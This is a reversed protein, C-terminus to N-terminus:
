FTAVDCTKVRFEPCKQVLQNSQLIEPEACNDTTFDTEPESPTYHTSQTNLEIRNLCYNMSSHKGLAPVGIFHLLYTLHSPTSNDSVEKNQEHLKSLLRWQQREREREKERERERKREREIDRKRVREAEREEGGEM